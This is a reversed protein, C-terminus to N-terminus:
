RDHRQFIYRWPLRQGVASKGTAIDSAFVSELNGSGYSYGTGYVTGADSSLSYIASNIGSNRVITNTPFSITAASTADLSGVGVNNACRKLTTFRGGVVVKNSGPPATIAMVEANAKPAWPLAAGTAVNFAALRQRAQGGVSNFIGGVYLTGDRVELARVGADLPATFINSHRATKRTSRLWDIGTSVVSM